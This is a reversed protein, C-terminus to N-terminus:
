LHRGPRQPHANNEAACTRLWGLETRVNVKWLYWLKEHRSRLKQCALHASLYWPMGWM